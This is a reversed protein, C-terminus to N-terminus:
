AKSRFDIKKKLCNLPIRKLHNLKLSKPITIGEVLAKRTPKKIGKSRLCINKNEHHMM